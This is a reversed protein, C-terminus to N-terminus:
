SSKKTFVRDLISRLWSKKSASKKPKIRKNQKSTTSKLKKSVRKSDKSLGKDTSRAKNQSSNEQIKIEITKSFFHLQRKQAQNERDILAITTGKRGARGSRGSRHIYDEVSEPLEYHIVHTVHDIDLGRAAVDTAVLFQIRGERYLRITKERESMSCGAHLIGVRFKKQKLSEFLRDAGKRTRTFILASSAETKLVQSLFSFKHRKDLLIARHEILENSEEPNDIQVKVPDKLFKDMIETAEHPLTASFMLVQRLNPLTQLIEMVQPSFGMDCMRDAEDLVCIEIDGLNLCGESIFDIMRGPTAVYLRPSHIKIARFQQDLPVGGYLPISVIEKQNGFVKMAEEDIQLALERTPCLVLAKKIKSEFFLQAIPALFAVTKGSGTKACAYLDRGSLICPIVAEQIPTPESFGMLEVLNHVVVKSDLLESFKNHISNDVELQGM